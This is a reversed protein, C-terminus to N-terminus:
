ENKKFTEDWPKGTEGANIGNKGDEAPAPDIAARQGEEYDIEKQATSKIFGKPLMKMIKNRFTKQKEREDM